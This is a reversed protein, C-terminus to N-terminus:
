LCGFGVCSTAKDTGILISIAKVSPVSLLYRHKTDMEIRTEVSTNSYYINM